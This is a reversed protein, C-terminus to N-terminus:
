KIASIETSVLTLCFCFLFINLFVQETLFILFNLQTILIKQITLVPSPSQLKYSQRFTIYCYACVINSKELEESMEDRLGRPNSQVFFHSAKPRNSHSFFTSSITCQSNPSLLELCSGLNSDALRKVSLTHRLLHVEHCSVVLCSRRTFQLKWSM